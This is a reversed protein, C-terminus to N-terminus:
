EKTAALAAAAKEVASRYAPMWYEKPLEAGFEDDPHFVLLGTLAERLQKNERRLVCAVRQCKDHCSHISDAQYNELRSNLRKVEGKLREVERREREINKRYLQAKM